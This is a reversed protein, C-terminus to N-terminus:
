EIRMVAKSTFSSAVLTVGFFKKPMFIRKSMDYTISVSIPQDSARSGEAPSITPTGLDAYKIGLPLSDKIHQIILDDDTPHVAAYRAAERTVNSIIITANLILGYQVMMLSMVLLMPLVLAFEVVVSGRRRKNTNITKM